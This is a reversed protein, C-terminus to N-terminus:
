SAKTNRFKANAMRSEYLFIFFKIQGFLKEDASSFFENIEYLTQGDDSTKM